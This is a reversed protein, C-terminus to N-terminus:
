FVASQELRHEVIPDSEIPRLKLDHSLKEDWAARPVLGVIESELIEVGCRQAERCVRYFARRLSTERYDTLNMSVQVLGRSVLPVGIAKVAPLGGNSTRISTAIYRAMVLDHSKLVVNLAILYLRAGVAIAGATPHIMAPGYDPQWDQDIQMRAGLAALGGRRVMELNARMLVKGAQEYLYVPIELEKGIRAGLEDAFTVCDEMTVGQFPIWPVVDVVGIRPHEGQHQCINILQQAQRVLGFLATGMADPEGVMTLVSRHHDPDVHVDLLAVCPVGEIGAILKAIVAQDEGESINPVSEVLRRMMM